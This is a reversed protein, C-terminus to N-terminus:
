VPYKQEIKKLMEDINKVLTLKHSGTVTKAGVSVINGFLRIYSVDTIVFTHSTNMLCKIADSYVSQPLSTGGGALYELLVIQYGYISHGQDDHSQIEPILMDNLVFLSAQIAKPDRLHRESLIFIFSLTSGVTPHGNADLSGELLVAEGGIVDQMLHVREEQMQATIDSPELFEQRFVKHFPVVQYGAGQLQNLLDSRFNENISM